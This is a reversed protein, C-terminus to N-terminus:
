RFTVSITHNAGVNTFTYRSVPGINVGDVVVSRIRRRMQPTMTFTQSDGAKVTITGSPTITGAGIVSTTITYTTVAPPPPPPPPASDGTYVMAGMEWPPHANQDAVTVPWTLYRQDIGFNYPSPLTAGSGVASSGSQLAYGTWLQAPNVFLPDVTPLINNLMTLNTANSFTTCKYFINNQVTWYGGRTELGYRGNACTNNYFVNGTSGSASDDEFHSLSPHTSLLLNNFIANNSGVRQGSPAQWTIDRYWPKGSVTGTGYIINRYVQNNDSTGGAGTDGYVGVAQLIQNAILNDHIRLNSGCEVAIGYLEGSGNMGDHVYNKYIDMNNVRHVYIATGCNRIENSYIASSNNLEVRGGTSIYDIAYGNVDYLYCNRVVIGLCPSTPQFQISIGDHGATPNTIALGDLTIWSRGQYITVTGWYAGTGNILPRSGTGYASVLVPNGQTGYFNPIFQSSYTTGAKFLISNGSQNGTVASQMNPISSFPGVGGSSSACTQGQGNGNVSCTSDVYFTTAMSITPMVLLLWLTLVFKKM